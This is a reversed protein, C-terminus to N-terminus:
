AGPQSRYYARSLGPAAIRRDDLEGPLGSGGTVLVTDRSTLHDDITM